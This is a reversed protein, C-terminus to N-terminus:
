KVQAFAVSKGNSFRRDERRRRRENILMTTAILVLGAALPWQYREIPEQSIREAGEKEMLQTVGRRVLENMDAMGKELHLYFGGTLEAVQRLREDDLRSKVVRGDTDKVFTTNGDADQIPILSGEKTGVGITFIRMKNSQERAARLTDGEIEEGDTFLIFARNEKDGKGLPREVYRIAEAINTGGRPIITTDLERICDIVASHDLTLPAQLFATGAYAILGVRYGDLDNVLDQAALKARELRNPEVDNALMSRSVDIAIFVDAASAPRRELTFGWRPQALSAIICALGALTLIFRLQRKFISATGALSKALRPAVFEEILKQRVRENRYFLALLLPLLGLAWFWCPQAFTM